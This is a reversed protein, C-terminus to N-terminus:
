TEVRRAHGSPPEALNKGRPLESSSCDPSGASAFGGVEERLGMLTGGGGELHGGGVEGGGGGGEGGLVGGRPEFGRGGRGSYVGCNGSGKIGSGKDHRWAAHPAPERESEGMYDCFRM